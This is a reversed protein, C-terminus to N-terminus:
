HLENFKKTFYERMEIIEQTSFKRTQNSMILIKDATGKGFMADLHKGFLHQEGGRFGNCKKCQPMVNVMGQEIDYLWRTSYKSRSQFHGCDTEYKWDKKVGCTFCNILGNEDANSKRVYKSLAADLKKIEKKRVCFYVCFSLPLLGERLSYVFVSTCLLV